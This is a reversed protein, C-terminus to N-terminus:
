RFAADGERCVLPQHPVTLLAPTGPLSSRGELHLLGLSFSIDQERAMPLPTPGQGGLASARQIPGFGFGGRGPWEDWVLWCTGCKAASPHMVQLAMPSSVDMDREVVAVEPYHQGLLSVEMELWSNPGLGEAGRGQDQLGPTVGLGQGM